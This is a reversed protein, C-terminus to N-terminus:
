QRHANVLDTALSQLRDLNGEAWRFEITVNQGEPGRQQLHAPKGLSLILELAREFARGRVAKGTAATKSRQRQEDSRANPPIEPSATLVM